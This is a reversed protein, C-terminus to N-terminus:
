PFSDEISSRPWVSRTVANGRGCTSSMLRQGRGIVKVKLGLRAMTMVRACLYELEFVLRNLLYLPFLPRVSTRVSAVSQKVTGERSVRDTFILKRHIM